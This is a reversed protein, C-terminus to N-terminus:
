GTPFHHFSYVSLSILALGDAARVGEGAGWKVGGGWCGVECGGEGAGWKM